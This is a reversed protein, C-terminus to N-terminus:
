QCKKPLRCLKPNRKQTAMIKVLLATPISFPLHIRVGWGNRLIYFTVITQCGSYVTYVNRRSKNQSYPTERPTQELLQDDATELARAPPRRCGDVHEPRTGGHVIGFFAQLSKVPFNNFAQQGYWIEWMIIGLSYIDAKCDYLESHFVEPAIYVPTGALTGTIDIVPKSIGVDTIKM